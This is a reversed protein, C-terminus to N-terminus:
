QVLIARFDGVHALTRATVLVNGLREFFPRSVGSSLAGTTDLRAKGARVLTDPTIWAGTNPDGGDRGGTCASLAWIGARGRLAMALALLYDTHSGVDGSARMRAPSQGVSLLVCPRRRAGSSRSFALALEAHAAAVERVGASVGKGLQVPNMDHRRAVATAARLADASRSLEVVEVERLCPDGPSLTEVAGGRMGAAGIELHRRAAAPVDVERRRIVELADAITTPDGATLGATLLAPEVGPVDSVAYTVVRAPACAAALQGGKVASLHSLVCNAEARTVCARLLARHTARKAAVTV